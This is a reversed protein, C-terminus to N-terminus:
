SYTHPHLSEFLPTWGATTKANVDAGKSILLQAVEKHSNGAAQHLPTGGGNSKANM